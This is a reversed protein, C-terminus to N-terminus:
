IYALPSLLRQTIPHIWYNSMNLTFTPHIIRNQSAFSDPLHIHQHVEHLIHVECVFSLDIDDM